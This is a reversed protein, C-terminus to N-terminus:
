ERFPRFGVHDPPANGAPLAGSTTADGGVKELWDLLSVSPAGPRIAVVTQPSWFASDLLVVTPKKFVIEQSKVSTFVSRALRVPEIGPLFEVTTADSTVSARTLSFPGAVTIRASGANSIKVNDVDLNRGVLPVPSNELVANHLWHRASSDTVAVGFGYARCDRVVLNRTVSWGGENVNFVGNDCREFVAGDLVTETHDHASFGEDFCDRANCNLFAADAVVGHINYADNGVFRVNLNRIVIHRSNGSLSVGTKRVIRRVSLTSPERGEPPRFFLDGGEMCWQGPQLQDKARLLVAEAGDVLVRVPRDSRKLASRFVPGGKWKRPDLVLPRADDGMVTVSFENAPRNGPPRFFLVDNEFQSNEFCFEGPQLERGLKREPILRDDVILGGLSVAGELRWLGNKDKKWEDAPCAESGDLTAGHGDVTIPRGPEGSKNRLLIEEAYPIDSFTLHITDGPGALAVARAISKVPGGAKGPDKALGSWDDNGTLSNVFLDAAFAPLSFVAVLLGVPRLFRPDNM